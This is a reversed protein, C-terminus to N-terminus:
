KCGGMGTLQLRQDGVPGIHGQSALVDIVVAGQDETLGAAKLVAAKNQTDVVCGVGAIANALASVQEPRPGGEALAASASLLLIAAALRM